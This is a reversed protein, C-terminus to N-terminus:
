RMMGPGRAAGRVDRRGLWRQASSQLLLAVTAAALLGPVVLPPSLLSGVLCLLGVVAASVALGIAAWRRRQFALVALLGSAVAWVLCVVATVWSASRLAGDSVGQDVLTPNQRHMETILGEPDAILVGVLLVSMLAALACCAWTIACAAAVAAPRRPPPAPPPVWPPPQTAAYAPWAPPPQQAASPGPPPLPPATPAPRPAPTAATPTSANSPTSPVPEPTTGAFWQRSPSLWLMAVSAAVVSALFGGTVLGCLFLPLALVSLGIRASRNRKLVHFGLIAAATALGAAVMSVVYLIDLVSELDLGLDSGPPQSIFEEIALRSEISRLDGLREFVSVVLMGSAGMVLAAALTVQRPRPLKESEPTPPV